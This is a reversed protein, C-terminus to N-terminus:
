NKIKIGWIRKSAACKKVNTCEEVRQLALGYIDHAAFLIQCLQWHFDM